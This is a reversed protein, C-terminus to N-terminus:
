SLGVGLILLGILTIFLSLAGIVDGIVDGILSDNMRRLLGGRRLAQLSSPQRGAGLSDRGDPSSSPHCSNPTITPRGM